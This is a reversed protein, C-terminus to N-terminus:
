LYHNKITPRLFDIIFFKRNLKLRDYRSLEALNGQQFVQRNVSYNVIKYKSEKEDYDKM